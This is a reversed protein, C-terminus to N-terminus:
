RFYEFDAPEIGCKYLQWCCPDPDTRWLPAPPWNSFHNYPLYLALFLAALRTLPFLFYKECAQPRTFTLAPTLPAPLLTSKPRFPFFFPAM